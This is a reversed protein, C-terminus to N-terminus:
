AKAKASTYVLAAFNSIIRKAFLIKEVQHCMGMVGVTAQWKFYAGSYSCIFNLSFYIILWGNKLLTVCPPPNAKQKFNSQNIFTKNNIWHLMTVKFFLCKFTSYYYFSLLNSINWIFSHIANIIPCPPKRIKPEWLQTMTVDNIKKIALLM